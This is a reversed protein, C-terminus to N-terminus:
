RRNLAATYSKVAINAWFDGLDIVELLSFTAAPRPLTVNMLFFSPAIEM